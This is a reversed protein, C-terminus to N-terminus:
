RKGSLLKMVELLFNKDLKGTTRGNPESYIVSLSKRLLERKDDSHREFQVRLMRLTSLAIHRFRYANALSQNELFQNIFFISLYTPIALMAVRLIILDYRIAALAMASTEDYLKQLLSVVIAATCIGLILWWGSGFSPLCPFFPVWRPSKIFAFGRHKEAEEAFANVHKQLEKEIVVDMERNFDRAKTFAGDIEQAKERAATLIKELQAQGEKTTAITREVEQRANKVTQTQQEINGLSDADEVIINVLPDLRTMLDELVNRTKGLLNERQSLDSHSRLPDVVSRFFINICSDLSAVTQSGVQANALKSSNVLAEFLARVRRLDSDLAAFSQAGLEARTLSEWQVERYRQLLQSNM